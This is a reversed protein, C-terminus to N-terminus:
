CRSFPACICKETENFYLWECQPGFPLHGARSCITAITTCAVYLAAAVCTNKLHNRAFFVVHVYADITHISWRPASGPLGELTQCAVGFRASITPLSVFRSFPITCHRYTHGHAPVTGPNHVSPLHHRMPSPARTESASCKSCPQLQRWLLCLLLESCSVFQGPQRLLWWGCSYSTALLAPLVIPRRFPRQHRKHHCPQPPRRRCHPRFHSNGVSRIVM